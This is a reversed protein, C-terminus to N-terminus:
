SLAWVWITILGLIAGVLFVMILVAAAGGVLPPIGDDNGLFFLSVFLWTALTALAAKM